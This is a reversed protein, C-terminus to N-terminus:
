RPYRGMLRHNGPDFPSEGIVRARRKEMLVSVNLETGEAALEPPLYAHVLLRGLTHSYGGSAVSAVVDDGAYIGEEGIADSDGPEVDLVAFCREPGSQQRVLYAARGSFEGKDTAIFRQMGADVPSTDPGLDRIMARYSKDLRLSEIARSGVHCMGHEHGHALIAEYLSAQYEIPHHVEFGLEGVYNVRMLIVDESLGVEGCCGRLWPLQEDGLDMETLPQLVERAHPGAVVLVGRRGSVDSVQVSGDEPLARLLLDLHHRQLRSSAALYFRQPGLRVVTYEGAIYGHESLHHCLRVMGTAAPVRNALFWDLFAEAGPGSVEYKSLHSLNMLGAANRVAHCEEGVHSFYNARRYSYRDEAAVGPPAFWTPLEWGSDSGWVAGAATLADHVPFRKVGRATKLQYDPYHVGFNNGFTERNREAAYRKTAYGSYRRPDAGMMDMGPEGELIWRSLYFGVGGGMTPGGSFGEALWVNSLGPAPGVMPRGDPTLNIPGRVNSRIGVEGFAPVMDVAAEIHQEVPDLKPPLLASVFGDPVGDEAFLELDEGLEYPGFMLGGREERIYANFRDAKLIPLEPLGQERRESLAAIPESVMYQHVIPVAPVDLGLLAGSQRAYMGTALVVHECVIDGQSTTVRWEGGGTRECGTVGVGRNIEVGLARAGAAMAMTVDAPAIHGDDPNHIAATILDGRALLPWMALAEDRDMFTAPLGLAAARDMYKRFEDARDLTTAIRLSGCRHWGVAQGTQAELSEYIEISKSVIAARFRDHTYKQVLGAAHWTSGSTLEHQECLMVDSCGRRALGHAIGVGVVGGGVVVVRATSRM